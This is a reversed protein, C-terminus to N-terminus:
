KIPGMEGVKKRVPSTLLQAERAAEFERSLREIQADYEVKHDYYWRLAAYIQGMSIHPWEEHIQEPIMPEVGMTDMVIEIV